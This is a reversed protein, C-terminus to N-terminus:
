DTEDEEFLESYLDNLCEDIIKLSKYRIRRIRKKAAESPLIELDIDDIASLAFYASQIYEHMSSYTADFEIEEEDSM